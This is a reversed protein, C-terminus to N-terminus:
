RVVGLATDGKVTLYWTGEADIYGNPILFNLCADRESATMMWRFRICALAGKELRTLTHTANNM